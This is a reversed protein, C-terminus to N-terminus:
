GRPIVVDFCEGLEDGLTLFRDCLVRKAEEDGHVIRIERHLVGMGRVFDVLDRQNAHATFAPRVRFIGPASCASGCIWM